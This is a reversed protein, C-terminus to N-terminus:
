LFALSLVIVLAFLSLCVFCYLTVLAYQAKALNDVSQRIDNLLEVVNKQATLIAKATEVDSKYAVTNAVHGEARKVNDNLNFNDSYESTVQM